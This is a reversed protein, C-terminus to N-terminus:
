KQITDHVITTEPADNTTKVIDGEMINGNTKQQKLSTSLSAAITDMTAADKCECWADIRWTTKM